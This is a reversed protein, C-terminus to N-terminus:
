RLTSLVLLSHLCVLADDLTQLFELHLIGLTADLEFRQPPLYEKVRNWWARLIGHRM